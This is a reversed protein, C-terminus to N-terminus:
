VTWLKNWWRKRVFPAEERPFGADRFRVLLDFIRRGYAPPKLYTDFVQKCNRQVAEVETESKSQWFQLIRKVLEDESDATLIIEDWKIENEFPFAMDSNLLIPIRGISHTQYFRM